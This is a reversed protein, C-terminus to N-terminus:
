RRGAEARSQGRAVVAAGVAGAAEGLAAPVLPLPPRHDGGEVMGALAARAPELLVPGAEVLGGGLVLLAPDLLAVVNALGLALWWGLEAMVAGAGPDGARAAATVDEGRVAEPDGGVRRVLLDLRGAQAAEGAMRGLGSGSAYREWCGRKGCPCAPGAPDVVMHGIEGAFGNAGRVVQGGVILGGGIGTGLTIVVADAVGRAAGYTWEGVTACTADNDVVVRRGGLVRSLAETVGLGEGGPLNPAFRLGGQDDVLGPVGVGLPVAAPGPDAGATGLDVLLRDVLEAIAAVLEGGDGPAGRGVPTASRAETLVEGSRDLAVGLLKTGGVDIGLSIAPPGPM